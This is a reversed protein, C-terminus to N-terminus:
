KQASTLGKKLYKVAWINPGYDFDTFPDGITEFGAALYSPLADLRPYSWVLEVNNQEAIEITKNFLFKSIGKGRNEPLIYIGRSRLHEKSSMFCSNCGVLEQDIYYGIFWVDSCPVESNYGGLFEWENHPKIVETDPWLKKWLPLIEGFSIFKVM